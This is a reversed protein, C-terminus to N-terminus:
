LARSTAVASSRSGPVGTTSHSARSRSDPFSTRIVSISSAPLKATGSAGSTGASGAHRLVRLGPGPGSETRLSGAPRIRETRGARGQCDLVSATRYVRCRQGHTDPFVEALAKRFGLAGNAVALVRPTSGHRACDRLLGAWAESSTRYGDAM